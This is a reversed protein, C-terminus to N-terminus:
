KNVSIDYLYGQGWMFANRDKERTHIEQTFGGTTVVKKWRM